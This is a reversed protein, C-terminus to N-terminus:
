VAELQNDLFSTYKGKKHECFTCRDVRLQGNIDCNSSINISSPGFSIYDKGMIKGQMLGSGQSFQKQIIKNQRM